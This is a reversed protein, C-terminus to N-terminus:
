AYKKKFISILPSLLVAPLIWILWSYGPDIPLKHINQVGFATIAAIYSGGMASIHQQIWWTGTPRETQLFIRIDQYAAVATFFGFIGSLLALIYNQDLVIRYLGYAILALGFLGTIASVFWDYWAEKKAKKRRLIRIGSFSAYFTMVSIVLLFMSFRYISILTIGSLCIWWMSGVYVRGILIHNKSGKRNAFSVVGLLLVTIGALVHSYVLVKEM